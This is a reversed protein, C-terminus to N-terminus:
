EIVEDATALLGPPVEIGLAQAAKLNIAFQFRSAQLVPLDAPKTGKLITGAYIGVQRFMDVVDTGYSMLGGAAVFGSNDYSAPIRDRAALESFQDRRSNFFVDPAVFLADPRDRAFGAFTADIENSTTANLVQQIQLGIAPAAEQVARLTPEVTAVNAPNVLVAVRVAKPVLDHLLRLRKAVVEVVFFNIGTANGGPRSLSAVLGLKVPDQAVGFVISITATAAKAAVAGTTFGPTAIVAVQRRILDALLAPLRDFQGALHHEEVTVNQGDAYGTETLGKRFAAVHPVSGEASGGDVLGIVPLPAKQARAVRPWTVAALGLASIFQRRGVVIAMQGTGVPNM